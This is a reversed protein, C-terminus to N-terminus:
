IYGNPSSSSLVNCSNTTPNGSVDYPRWDLSGIDSKELNLSVPPNINHEKIM